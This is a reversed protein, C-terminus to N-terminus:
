RGSHRPSPPPFSIRSILIPLCLPIASASPFPPFPDSHFSTPQHIPFSYNLPLAYAGHPHQAQIYHPAFLFPLPTRAPISLAHLSRTVTGIRKEMEAKTQALTATVEQTAEQASAVEKTLALEVEKAAAQAAAADAEWKRIDDKLKATEAAAVGREREADTRANGAEAEAQELASKMEQLEDTVDNRITDIENLSADFDRTLDMTILDKEAESLELKSQTAHLQAKLESM